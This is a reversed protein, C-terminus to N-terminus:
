LDRSPELFENVVAQFIKGIISLPYWHIVRLPTRHSSNDACRLRMVKYFPKISAEREADEPYETTILFRKRHSTVRIIQITM